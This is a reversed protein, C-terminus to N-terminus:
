HYYLREKVFPQNSDRLTEEFVTFYKIKIQRQYIYLFTYRQTNALIHTYTHTHTHVTMHNFMHIKPMHIYEIVNRPQSCRAPFVQIKNMKVTGEVYM